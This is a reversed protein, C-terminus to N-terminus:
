GNPRTPSSAPCAPASAPRLQTHTANRWSSQLMDLDIPAALSDQLKPPIREALGSSASRRFPQRTQVEAITSSASGYLSPANSPQVDAQKALAGDYDPGAGSCSSSQAVDGSSQRKNNTADDTPGVGRTTHKAAVEGLCYSEGTSGASSSKTRAGIWGAAAFRNLAAAREEEENMDGTPPKMRYREMLSRLHAMELSQLESEEYFIDKRDHTLEIGPTAGLQRILDAKELCGEGSVGLARMLRKLEPVRMMMLEGGKLRTVRGRMRQLRGEEYEQSDTALEFRCIPCSNATRLWERICNTCFLHGCFMRTARMGAKFEEFCVMCKSNIDDLQDEKTVVVRPLADRTSENAPPVSPQQDQLSREIMFRMVQEMAAQMANGEGPIFSGFPVEGSEQGDPALAAGVVGLGPISVLLLSRGAQQGNTEASPAGERGDESGARLLTRGAALAAILRALDEASGNFIPPPM